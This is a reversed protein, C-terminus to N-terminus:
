RRSLATARLASPLFSFAKTAAGLARPLVISSPRRKLARVIKRSVDDVDMLQPMPHTSHETIRTKVFGLSVRTVAVGTGSLDMRLCELLMDLGAKPACYAAAGPLAGFAALSSIGVIHGRGRRVMAPLSATLTAAAGCLNVHLASAMAEWAYPTMAPDPTGVGANAIIMDLGGVEEDIARIQQVAEDTKSADLVVGRARSGIETCAADLAARERGTVVVEMGSRALRVALGKGIGRSGGTVLVHGMGGM